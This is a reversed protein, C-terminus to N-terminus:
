VEISLSGLVRNMLMNSDSDEGSLEESLAEAELRNSRGIWLTKDNIPLRGNCQTGEISPSTITQEAASNCSLSNSSTDSYTDCHGSMESVEICYSRPVWGVKGRRMALWWGNNGKHLLIITENINVRLFRKFDKQEEEPAPDWPFLLVAKAHTLPHHVSPIMNSQVVAFGTTPSLMGDACLQERFSVPSALLTADAQSAEVHDVSLPFSSIRCMEVAGGSDFTM